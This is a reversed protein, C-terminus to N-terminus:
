EAAASYEITQSREHTTRKRQNNLRWQERTLHLAHSVYHPGAVVISEGPDAGFFIGRQRAAPRATSGRQRISAGRVRYLRRRRARRRSLAVLSAPWSSKRASQFRSLVRRAHRGRNFAGADLNLTDNSLADTTRAAPRFALVVNRDPRSRHRSGNRLPLLNSNKNSDLDPLLAVTAHSPPDFAM